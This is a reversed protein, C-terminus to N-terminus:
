FAKKCTTTGDPLLFYLVFVICLYVCRFMCVSAFLSWMVRMPIDFLATTPFMQRKRFFSFMSNDYLGAIGKGPICEFSSFLPPSPLPSFAYLQLQIVIFFLNFFFVQGELM